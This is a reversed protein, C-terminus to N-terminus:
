LTAAVGKPRNADFNILVFKYLFGGWDLTKNFEHM